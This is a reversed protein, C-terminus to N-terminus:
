AGSTVLEKKARPTATTVIASARLVTAHELSPLPVVPLVDLDLADDLTLPEPEALSEPTTTAIV